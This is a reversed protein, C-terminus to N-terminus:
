DEQTTVTDNSSTPASNQIPYNIIASASGINQGGNAVGDGDNLAFTMSRTLGSPAALGNAYGVHELLVTVRAQTSNNNLTIVLDSGNTGGAVTGISTGNVRVVTGGAGTLTVVADTVIGLRDGTAANQSISIRLQGGDFNGSDPDVM